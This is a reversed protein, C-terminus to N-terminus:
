QMHRPRVINVPIRGDALAPDVQGGDFMADFRAEAATWFFPVRPTHTGILNATRRFGLPHVSTVTWFMQSPKSLADKDALTYELNGQANPQLMSVKVTERVVEELTHPPGSFREIEIDYEVAGQSPQWIFPGGSKFPLSGGDPPSVMEFPTLMAKRV